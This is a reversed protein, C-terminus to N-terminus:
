GKRPNDCVGGVSLFARGKEAVGVAGKTLYLACGWDPEYNDASIILAKM